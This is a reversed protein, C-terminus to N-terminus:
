PSRGSARLPSAKQKGSRAQKKQTQAARRKTQQALKPALNAAARRHNSYSPRRKPAAPGKRARSTPSAAHRTPSDITRTPLMQLGTSRAPPQPRSTVRPWITRQRPLNPPSGASKDPSTEGQGGAGLASRACCPQAPASRCRSTGARTLAYRNRAAASRCRDAPPPARCGIGPKARLAHARPQIANAPRPRSKRSPGPRAHGRCPPRSPRSPDAFWSAM